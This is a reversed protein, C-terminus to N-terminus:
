CGALRRKGGTALVIVMRGKGNLRQNHRGELRLLHELDLAIVVTQVCRYAPMLSKQGDGVDSGDAVSKSVM